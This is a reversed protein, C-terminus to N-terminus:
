DNGGEELIADENILQHVNLVPVVGGEFRAIGALYKAENEPTNGPLSVLEDEGLEYVDEIGDIKLAYYHKSTGKQLGEKTQLENLESNKKLVVMWGRKAGSDNPTLSESPEKNQDKFHEGPSIVTIIQGRLNMLGSIDKDAGEVPTYEANELTERILGIPISFQKEEIIVTLLKM